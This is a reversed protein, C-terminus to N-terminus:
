GSECRVSEVREETALEQGYDRGWQQDAAEDRGTRGGAAGGAHGADRTRSCVRRGAGAHMDEDDSCTRCSATDTQGLCNNVRLGFSHRTEQDRVAELLYEEGVRRSRRTPANIWVSM